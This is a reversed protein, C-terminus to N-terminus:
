NPYAVYASGAPFGPLGPSIVLPIEACGTFPPISTFTSGTTLNKVTVPSCYSSVALAKTTDAAPTIPNAVSVLTKTAGQSALATAVLIVLQKLSQRRKFRYIM